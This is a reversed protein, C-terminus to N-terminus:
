VKMILLLRTETYTYRKSHATFRVSHISTFVNKKKKQSPYIMMIMM